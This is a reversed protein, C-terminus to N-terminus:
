PHYVSWLAAGAAVIAAITTLWGRATRWRAGSTRERDKAASQFEERVITRMDGPVKGLQEKLAEICDHQHNLISALAPDKSAVALIAMSHDYPDRWHRIIGDTM